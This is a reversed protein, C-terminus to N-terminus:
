LYTSVKLTEDQFVVDRTHSTTAELVCRLRKM